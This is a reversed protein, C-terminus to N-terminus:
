VAKLESEVCLAKLVDIKNCELHNFSSKRLKITVREFDYAQAKFALSVSTQDIRKQGFTPLVNKAWSVKM